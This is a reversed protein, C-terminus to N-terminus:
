QMRGLLFELARLLQPDEGRELHELTLEVPFDPEVGVKDIQTGSPSTLRQTLIQVASGDSLPVSTAIGTNGATTEGVLPGFQHERISAALVEAGSATERDVLVVLPTRPIAPRGDGNIPQRNGARDIAVAVPRNEVFNAAVRAVASMAGGSNGRLDLVWARAGRSRGQTLVQQVMEPVDEGFSRVRVIGVLNGRVAGEVRPADVSARAIQVEMGPQERRGVSIKVPSGQPGRISMAIETISRGETPKGDVALIKDAPRLGARQAPSNQYVEVITPPQEALPRSLRVGIGSFSSESMRRVEDPEIFVSHGDGLSAVMQRVAAWDPRVGAAWRPQRQVTADYARAFNQWDREPNGVPTPALDLAATDLPLAGSRLGLDRIATSALRILEAHDVRDVHRELILRYVLGLDSSTLTGDGTPDGAPVQGAPAQAPRGAQSGQPQSQSSGSSPSVRPNGPQSGGGGAGCAQAALSVTLAVALITVRRVAGVRRSTRGPVCTGKLASGPRNYAMRRSLPGGNPAVSEPM